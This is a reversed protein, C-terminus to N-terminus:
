STNNEDCIPSNLSMLNLRLGPSPYNSNVCGSITFIHDFSKASMTNKNDNNKIMGKNFFASATSSASGSSLTLM